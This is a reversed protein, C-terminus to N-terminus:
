QLMLSSVESTLSFSFTGPDDKPGEMTHTKGSGTQGYAFVTARGGKLVFGVYFYIYLHDILDLM